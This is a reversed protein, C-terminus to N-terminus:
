INITSRNKVEVSMEYRAFDYMMEEKKKKKWRVTWINKKRMKKNKELIINQGNVIM